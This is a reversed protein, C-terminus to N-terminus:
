PAYTLGEAMALVDERTLTDPAQFLFQVGDPFQAALNWTRKGSGPAAAHDPVSVLLAPDGKVTVEEVPEDEAMGQMLDSPDDYGRWREQLSVGIRESLNTPDTERVLALNSLSEYSSVRWGEPALGFQLQVPQPRDVVSEAVQVLATEDGYRDGQGYVALWKGDPRQWYLEAYRDSCIEEPEDEQGPTTPVARCDPEGFTARVFDAPRGAVTVTGREDIEAESYPPEQLVGPQPVRPDGPSVTFGFGLDDASRYTASHTVPEIRGFVELGGGGTLVPTLGEPAPDLSYPFTIAEAAVLTLGGPPDLPLPTPEVTAPAPTAVPPRPQGPEDVVVATTWAAAIVLVGAGARVFTRRSPRRRRPPATRAEAALQGAAIVSAPEDAEKTVFRLFEEPLAPLDADRIGAVAALRDDLERDTSM